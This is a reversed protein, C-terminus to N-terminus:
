EYTEVMKEYHACEPTASDEMNEIEDCSLGTMSKLCAAAPGYLPHNSAVGDFQQQLSVCMGELSATIMARMDPALDVEGMNKMACSKMKECMMNYSEAMDDAHLQLSVGLLIGVGAAYIVRM